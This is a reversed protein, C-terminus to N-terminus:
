KTKIYGFRKWLNFKISYNLFFRREEISPDMVGVEIRDESLLLRFDTSPLADFVRVRFCSCGECVRVGLGFYLNNSLWFEFVMEMGGLDGEVFVVKDYDSGDGDSM